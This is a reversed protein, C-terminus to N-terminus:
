PTDLTGSVLSYPRRLGFLGGKSDGEAADPAYDLYFLPQYTRVLLSDDHVVTTLKNDLIYTVNDVTAALVAHNDGAAEDRLVVVKLDRIGLAYLAAAKVIAFDECDGGEDQLFKQADKWVDTGLPEREYAWVTVGNRKYASTSFYDQVAILKDLAHNNDTGWTGQLANLWLATKGACSERAMCAQSAMLRQHDLLAEFSGDRELRAPILPSGLLTRDESASATTGAFFLCLMIAMMSIIKM